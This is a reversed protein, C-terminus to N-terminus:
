AASEKSFIVTVGGDAALIMHLGYSGAALPQGAIKVDTSFAVVTNVDAGARWPAARQTGFGADNLGYAVLKGWIERQNVAPRGYDVSVRTIGIDQSVSARPSAAPLTLNQALAPGALALSLLVLLKKM